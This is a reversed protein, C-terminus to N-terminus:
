RLRMVPAPSITIPMGTAARIPGLDRDITPMAAFATGSRTEIAGDSAIPSTIARVARLMRLAM